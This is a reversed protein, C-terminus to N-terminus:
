RRGPKRSTAMLADYARKVRVFAEADGGRDLRTALADIILNPVVHVSWLLWPTIL